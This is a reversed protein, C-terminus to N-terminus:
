TSSQRVLDVNGTRAATPLVLKFGAEKILALAREGMAGGQAGVYEDKELQQNLWLKLTKMDSVPVMETYEVQKPYGHVMVLGEEKIPDRKRPPAGDYGFDSLHVM